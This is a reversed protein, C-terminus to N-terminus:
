KLICIERLVKVCDYECSFIGSIFKIAVPKNTVKCIAEVVEGYSGVGLSRKLKYNVMASVWIDGLNLRLESNKEFNKEQQLKKEEIM